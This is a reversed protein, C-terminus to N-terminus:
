ATILRIQLEVMDNVLHNALRQFFGGSGYLVGWRTRDISFAAQAACRGKEDVGAAATFEVPATVGRLTLMGEVNLNQAGPTAGEIRSSRMIALRAQPYTETDFFDDSRLHEVLVDHLPNGALDDSTIEHMNLVVEGGTLEGKQFTLYGSAVPVKGWHKNVLNRGLWEVRSERTDVEYRGDPVIEAAPAEGSGETPRGGGCWSELCGELRFVRQYGARSLKDAAVQAEKSNSSAGYVCVTSNKDAALEPMRGLFAVEYVCNSLAGPIHCRDYDDKLRVDLVVTGPESQCLSELEQVNLFTASM